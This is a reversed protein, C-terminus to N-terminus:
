AYKIFSPDVASQFKTAFKNSSKYGSFLRSIEEYAKVKHRRM